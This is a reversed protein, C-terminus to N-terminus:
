GRDESLPLHARGVLVFGLIEVGVGAVIFVSVAAGHLMALAAIVIGWGSLLLLFGLPKMQIQQVIV